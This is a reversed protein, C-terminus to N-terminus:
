KDHAPPVHSQGYRICDNCTPRSHIYRVYKDPYYTIGLEHLVEEPVYAWLLFLATVGPLVFRFTLVCSFKPWTRSSTQVILHM